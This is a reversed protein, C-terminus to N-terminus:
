VSWKFCGFGKQKFYWGRWEYKTWGYNILANTWNIISSAGAAVLGATKVTTNPSIYNYKIFCAGAIRGLYSVVILTNAEITEKTLVENQIKIGRSTLLKSFYFQYININITNRDTAINM